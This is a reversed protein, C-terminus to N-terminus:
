VRGSAASEAEERNQQRTIFVRRREKIHANIARAAEVSCAASHYERGIFIRKQNSRKVVAKRKPGQNYRANVAAAARHRCRNCRYDRSLIRSPSVHRELCLRCMLEATM